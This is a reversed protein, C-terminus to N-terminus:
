ARRIERIEDTGDEETMMARGQRLAKAWAM